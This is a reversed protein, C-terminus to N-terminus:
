QRSEVIRQVIWADIEAEVWGTGSPVPQLALALEFEDRNGFTVLDSVTTNITWASAM